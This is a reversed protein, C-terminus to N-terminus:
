LKKWVVMRNIDLNMGHNKLFPIGLVGHIRKGISEEYRQFVGELSAVTYLDTLKSNRHTFTLMYDLATRDAGDVGYYTSGKIAKREEESFEDIVRADLYCSNAGTDVLFTYKTGHQSTLTILPTGFETLVEYDVPIHESPNTFIVAGKKAAYGVGTVILLLIVLYIIQGVM